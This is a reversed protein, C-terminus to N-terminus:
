AQARQVGRTIIEVLNRIFWEDATAADVDDLLTPVLKDRMRLWHETASVFTLVAFVPELDSRVQGETQAKKLSQAAQKILDSGAEAYDEGITELMMWGFIRLMRPRSALFDYYERIARGISPLQGGNQQALRERLSRYDEMYNRKVAAWLDDKSGFHHHILSKTVDAQQAIASLSTDAFGKEAFLQEAAQLIEIQTTETTRRRRRVQTATMARKERVNLRGRPLTNALSRERGDRLPYVCSGSREQWV